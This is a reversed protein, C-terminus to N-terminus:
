RRAEDSSAEEKLWEVFAAVEPRARAHASALAYFARTSESRVRFPAVLKGARMADRVLPHRGLAIGDGQIAAQVVQEYSSFTLRAAPKVDQAGALELWSTWSLWPLSGDPDDIQLMVHRRLDAPERLPRKADRALAPSCVPFVSEGFLRAAGGGARAATAYRIACDIGERELDQLRVDAHIRVDVDPRLRAFSPLRPILWLAAFSPTTTVSLARRAGLARLRDTTGRMIALIQAAAPYLQQGAETLALARHRRHFLKVGLQDELDLIQRSVASQTLHLEAGARTISLLRAAAEFGKLLDLSPLRPARVAAPKANAERM